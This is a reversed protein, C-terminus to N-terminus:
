GIISFSLQWILARGRRGGESNLFLKSYDAYVPPTSSGARLKAAEPGICTLSVHARGSLPWSIAEIEVEMAGM